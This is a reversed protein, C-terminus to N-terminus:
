NTFFLNTYLRIHQEHMYNEQFEPFQGANNSLKKFYNPETCIRMMALALEQWHLQKCLFGNHGNKIVDRIGGTDYAIIPLGCCQAEIISCPLGEWLSSLVFADWTLLYKKVEPQWGHLTIAKELSHDFIWQKIEHRQVGDGILELKIKDNHQHAFAFARLTDIINKQPKFCAISGFVFYDHKQKTIAKAPVFFHKDIAARILSHKRAFFPFLKKGTIIDASSVCVYHHTIFSTIFEIFYILMREIRPQHNHFAFGHVTHIRMPARAFFAAWRGLIGAKTSHTHVILNTHQQKLKRILGVLKIFSWLEKGINTFKVERQLSDIFFVNSNNRVEDTLLGGPGTALYCHIKQEQTQKFLSLCVKQAGGLELKTIVYLIAYNNSM